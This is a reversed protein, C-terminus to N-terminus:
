KFAYGFRKITEADLRAVIDILEQSTYMDHYDETPLLPALEPRKSRLMAERTQIRQQRDQKGITPLKESVGLRKAVPPWDTDLHEFRIFTDMLVEGSPTRCFSMQDLPFRQSPNPRPRNGIKKLWQDFPIREFGMNGFFAWWSVARDWPNRICTFKFRSRVVTETLDKCYDSITKHERRYKSDLSSCISRGATKPIHIFIYIDTVM